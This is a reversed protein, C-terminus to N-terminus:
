SVKLTDKMKPREFILENLICIIFLYCYLILSFCHFSSILWYTLKVICVTM